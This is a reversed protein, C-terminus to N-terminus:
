DVSNGWDEFGRAWHPRGAAIGYTMVREKLEGTDVDFLEIAAPGHPDSRSKIAIATDDQVLKWKEVNRLKPRVVSIEEGNRLLQFGDRQLRVQIVGPPRPPPPTMCGLLLLSAVLYAWPRFLTDIMLAELKFGFNPKTSFFEASSAQQSALCLTVAVQKSKGSEPGGGQGAPRQSQHAAESFIFASGGPIGRPFRKQGRRVLNGLDM